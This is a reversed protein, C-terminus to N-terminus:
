SELAECCDDSAACDLKRILRYPHRRHQHRPEDCPVNIMRISLGTKREVAGSVGLDRQQHAAPHVVQRVAVALALLPGALCDIALDFFQLATLNRNQRTLQKQWGLQLKGAVM